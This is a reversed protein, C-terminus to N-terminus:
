DYFGNFSKDSTLETFLPEPINKGREVKFTINGKKSIYIRHSNNIMFCMADQTKTDFWICTHLEEGDHFVHIHKSVPM